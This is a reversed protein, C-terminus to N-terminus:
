RTSWLAGGTATVLAQAFRKTVDEAEPDGSPARSEVWWVPNPVDIGLLRKAEGPVQVLRAGETTLMLRGDPHYLQILQAEEITNVHLHTGAAHMAGLM